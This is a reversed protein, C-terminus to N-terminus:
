PTGPLSVRTRAHQTRSTFGTVTEKWFRGLMGYVTKVSYGHTGDFYPHALRYPITVPHDLRIELPGGAGNWADYLGCHTDASLVINQQNDMWDIYQQLTMTVFFALANMSTTTNTCETYVSQLFASDHYVQKTIADRLQQKTFGQQKALWLLSSKNDISGNKPAYYGAINNLTYEYDGDGTDVLIDVQVTRKLYHDYPFNFYVHERIIEQVVDEYTDFPVQPDDTWHEEILKVFEYEQDGSITAAYEDLLEYFADLKHPAQVIDKLQDFSIRDTPDVWLDYTGWIGPYKFKTNDSFDVQHAEDNLTLVFEQLFIKQVIKEIAVRDLV